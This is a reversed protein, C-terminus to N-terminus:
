EYAIGDKRDLYSEWRRSYPHVLDVKGTDSFLPRLDNHWGFIGHELNYLNRTPNGGPSELIREALESSRYGVSCYVVVDKNGILEGYRSLFTEASADPDIRIANEIHSVRYEEEERVDFVIINNSNSDSLIGELQNASIHSVEPFKRTIKGHMKGLDDAMAIPSSIFLLLTVARVLLSSKTTKM